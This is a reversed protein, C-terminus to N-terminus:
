HGKCSPEDIDRSWTSNSWLVTDQWTDSLFYRLFNRGLDFLLVYSLASVLNVGHNGYVVYTLLGFVVLGSTFYILSIFPDSWVLIDMFTLPGTPLAAKAAAHDDAANPGSSVPTIPPTAPVEAAKVAASFPKLRAVPTPKFEFTNSHLEGLARRSTDTSTVDPTFADQGGKFSLSSNGSVTINPNLPSMPGLLNELNDMQRSNKQM